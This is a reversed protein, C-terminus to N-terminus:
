NYNTSDIITKTTKTAPATIDQQLNKTVQQHPKPDPDNSTLLVYGGYLLGIFMVPLFILLWRRRKEKRIQPEIKQWVADSPAIKLEDMKQQVRKEFENEQM